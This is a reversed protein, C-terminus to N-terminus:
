FRSRDGLKASPTAFGSEPVLMPGKGSDFSQIGISGLPSGQYQISTAKTPCRGPEGMTAASGIRQRSGMWRAQGELLIGRNGRSSALDDAYIYSPVFVSQQRGKYAHPIM